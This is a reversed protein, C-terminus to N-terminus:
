FDQALATTLLPASLRPTSFRVKDTPLAFVERQIEMLVRTAKAWIGHSHPLKPVKGSGLSSQFGLATLSGERESRPIWGSGTSGERRGM